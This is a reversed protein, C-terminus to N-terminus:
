KNLKRLGVTLKLIDLKLTIGFTEWQNEEAILQLSNGDIKERNIIQTYDTSLKLTQMWSVVHEVQWDDLSIPFHFEAPLEIM